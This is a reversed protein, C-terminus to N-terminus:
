RRAKMGAAGTVPRTGHPLSPAARQVCRQPCGLGVLCGRAWPRPLMPAPCGRAVGPVSGLSGCLWGAFGKRLFRELQMSPSSCAM